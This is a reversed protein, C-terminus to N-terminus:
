SLNFLLVAGWEICAVFNTDPKNKYEYNLEIQKNKTLGFLSIFQDVNEGSEIQLSRQLNINLFAILQSVIHKRLQANLDFIRAIKICSSAM